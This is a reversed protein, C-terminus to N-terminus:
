DLLEAQLNTQSGHQKAHGQWAIGNFDAPVVFPHHDGCSSIM